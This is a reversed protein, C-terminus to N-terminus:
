IKQSVLRCKYDAGANRSNGYYGGLGARLMSSNLYILDLTESRLFASGGSKFEISYFLTHRYVEKISENSFRKIKEKEVEILVVESARPIHQRFLDPTNADLECYLEVAHVSLSSFFFSFGFAIKLFNM